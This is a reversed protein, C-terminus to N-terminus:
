RAVQRWWLSRFDRDPVHTERGYQLSLRCQEREKNSEHPTDAFWGFNAERDCWDQERRQGDECQVITSILTAYEEASLRQAALLEVGLRRLDRADCWLSFEQQMLFERVYALMEGFRNEQQEALRAAQQVALERLHQEREMARRTREAALTTLAHEAAAIWAEYGDVSPIRDPNPLKDFWSCLECRHVVQPAGLRCLRPSRTERFHREREADIQKQLEAMRARQAVYIARKGRYEELKDRLVELIVRTQVCWTRCQEADTPPLARSREYVEYAEPESFECYAYALRELEASLAAADQTPNDSAIGRAVNNMLRAAIARGNRTQYGGRKATRTAEHQERRKQAPMM